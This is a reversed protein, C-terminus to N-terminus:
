SFMLMEEGQALWVNNFVLSGLLRKVLMAWNEKEPMADMERLM